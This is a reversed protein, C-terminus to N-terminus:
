AVYAVKRLRTWWHLVHSQWYYSGLLARSSPSNSGSRAGRAAADRVSVDRAVADVVLPDRAAAGRVDRAERTNRIISLDRAPIDHPEANRASAHRKSSARPIAERERLDHQLSAELKRLAAMNPRTHQDAMGSQLDGEVRRVSSARQAAM